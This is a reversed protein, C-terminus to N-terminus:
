EEDSDSVQAKDASAESFDKDNLLRCKSGQGKAVLKRLIARWCDLSLDIKKL